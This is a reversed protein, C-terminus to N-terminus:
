DIWLGRYIYGRAGGPARERRDKGFVAAVEKGFSREGVPKYGSKDCHDQYRQYLDATAIGENHGDSVHELLYARAPNSELRHDDKADKCIKPEPFRWGRRLLKVYGAIAWQFIGDMEPLLYKEAYQKDQEDEPIKVNFPILMLRRWTAETRDRFRPTTNACFILKASPIFNFAPAYKREVEIANNGTYERLKGEVSRGSEDLDDCINLLKGITASLAFTSAFSALDVHSCNEPGVIAEMIKVTTSKGGGGDGTLVFFKQARQDPVFALGFVLQLLERVGDDPVTKQLFSLWQPCQAGRVYSVPLAYLCFLAPSLPQLEDDGNVLANLSLMGNQLPIIDSGGPPDGPGIFAPPNVAHDILCLAKVNAIVTNRQATTQPCDKRDQLYGSVIAELDSLPLERYCTGNFVYWAGRWYRLLLKGDPSTWHKNLYDNALEAPSPSPDRQKKNKSTAGPKIAEVLLSVLQHLDAPAETAGTAATTGTPAPSLEPAPPTWALCAAALGELQERTGGAAIWDSVDGKESLVPLNVV